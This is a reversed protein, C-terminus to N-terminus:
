KKCDKAARQLAKAVDLAQNRDMGVWRVAKGFNIMVKKQDSSLGITFKIEGDDNPQIKGQPHKGTAGLGYRKDLEAFSQKMQKQKKLDDEDGVVVIDRKMDEISRGAGELPKDSHHM